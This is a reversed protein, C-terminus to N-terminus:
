KVENKRKPQRTAAQQQKNQGKTKGKVIAKKNQTQADTNQAEKDGGRNNNYSHLNRM